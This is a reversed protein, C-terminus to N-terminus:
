LKYAATVLASILLTWGVTSFVTKLTTGLKTLASSTGAIKATLADYRAEDKKLSKENAAISANLKDITTKTEVIQAKTANISTSTADMETKLERLQTHAKAWSKMAPDFVSATTNGAEKNAKALRDVEATLDSMNGKQQSYTMQLAEQKKQYAELQVKAEALKTKQKEVSLTEVDIQNKTALIKGQLEDRAANLATVVKTQQQMAQTQVNVEKVGGGVSASGSM